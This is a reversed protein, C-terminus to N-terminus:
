LIMSIIKTIEFLLYLLPIYAASVILIWAVIYVINQKRIKSQRYLYRDVKWFTLLIIPTNWIGAGWFSVAIPDVGRYTLYFIILLWVLTWSILILIIRLWFKDLYSLRM